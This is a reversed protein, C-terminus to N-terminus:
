KHLVSWLLDLMTFAIVLCLALNWYFWESYRSARRWLRDLWDAFPRLPFM